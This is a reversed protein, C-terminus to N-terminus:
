PFGGQLESLGEQLPPPGISVPMVGPTRVHRDTVHGRPARVPVPPDQLAFVEPLVRVGAPAGEPFLVTPVGRELIAQRLDPPRPDAPLLGALAERIEHDVIRAIGNGGLDGPSGGVDRPIGRLERENSELVAVRLSVRPDM